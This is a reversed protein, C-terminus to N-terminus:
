EKGKKQKEELLLNIKKLYSIEKIAESLQKECLALEGTLESVTKVEQNNKKKKSNYQVREGEVKAFSEKLYYQFFNYGLVGSIKKLLEADISKRKFIGYVNQSTTNIRRAFESKNIGKEEVIKKILNGIHIEM